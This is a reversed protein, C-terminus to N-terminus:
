RRVELQVYGNDRLARVLVETGPPAYKAANDLLNFLVQELLVADLKLMPLDPALEIKCSM